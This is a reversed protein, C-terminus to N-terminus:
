KHSHTFIIWLNRLLVFKQHIKPLLTIFLFFHRYLTRCNKMDLWNKRCNDVEVSFGEKHGVWYLFNTQWRLIEHLYEFELIPSLNGKTLTVLESTEFVEEKFKVKKMAPYYNNFKHRILINTRWRPDAM